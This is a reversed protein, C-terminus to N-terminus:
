LIKYLTGAPLKIIVENIVQMPVNDIAFVFKVGKPIMSDVVPQGPNTQNVFCACDLGWLVHATEGYRSAGIVLLEEDKFNPIITRLLQGTEIRFHIASSHIHQIMTVQIISITFSSLVIIFTILKTPIFRICVTLPMVMLISAFFYHTYDMNFNFEGNSNYFQFLYFTEVNDQFWVQYHQNHFFMLTALFSWLVGIIIKCNITISDNSTSIIRKPLHIRIPFNVLGEWDRILYSGALTVLYVFAYYRAHLRLAETATIGEYSFAYYSAVGTSIPIAFILWVFVLVAALRKSEDKPSKIYIKMNNALIFLFPFLLSLVTLLNAIEYDVFLFPHALLTQLGNSSLHQTVGLYSSGIPYLPNFIFHKFVIFSYILLTLYLSVIYILAGLLNKIVIDKNSKSFFLFLNISLITLSSALIAYTGHPKILFAFALFVACLLYSLFINNKALFSPLLVSATVFAYFIVDPMLGASYASSPLFGALLVFFIANARNVYYFIYRSVLYITYVYVTCSIFRIVSSVDNFYKFCTNIILLYLPNTIRQLLPDRDYIFPLNELYKGSTIYAYEDGGYIPSFHGISRTVQFVYVILLFTYFIKSSISSSLAINFYKLM